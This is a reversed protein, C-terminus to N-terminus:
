CEGLDAVTGGGPYGSAEGLALFAVRGASRPANAAGDASPRTYGSRSKQWAASQDSKGNARNAARHGTQVSRGHVGAARGTARGFADRGRAAASGQQGRDHTSSAPLMPGSASTQISIRKHSALIRAHRTSVRLLM